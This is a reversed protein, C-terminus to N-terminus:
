KPKSDRQSKRLNSAFSKKHKGLSIDKILFVLTTFLHKQVYERYQPLSYCAAEQQCQANKKTTGFAWGRSMELRSWYISLEPRAAWM